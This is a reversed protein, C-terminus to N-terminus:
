RLAAVTTSSGANEAVNKGPAKSEGGESGHFDCTIAFLIGAPKAGSESSFGALQEINVGSVDMSSLVETIYAVLKDRGSFKAPNITTIEVGSFAGKTQEIKHAFATIMEESASSGFIGIRKGSARILLLSFGPDAPLRENIRSLLSVPGTQDSQLQKIIRIRDDISQKREQLQKAQEALKAYERALAEEKTVQEAVQRNQTNWYYYDGGLTVVTAAIGLLALLLTQTAATAKAVVARQEPEPATQLLNVRIM